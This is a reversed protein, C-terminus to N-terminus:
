ADGFLPVIKFQTVDVIGKDTIKLEPIVPLALFSLAMFPEELKCGMERVTQHLRNIGDRVEEISQDSMLGGIPLPLSTLTKGAKVAILGGHMEVIGQVAQAMDADNAGVVVINHSDHAVSSAMAGDRLGFGKVFGLGINGTGKHREVVAIKLIDREPDAVAWGEKTKVTHLAKKTIIQQPIIEIVKARDALAKIRFQEASIKPLHFTNEAKVQKEDIVGPLVKGKEAVLRGAKFVQDIKFENLDELVVLDAQYGPAIAGIDPLPFYCAPNITAMQIAIIPDLGLRIAKRVCHDIGGETILDAPHRDDTVFMCRRANLPTIIQILEELNKATSGERIKIYMGLCLKEEAEARRTCEHDSSIGAAIYAILEKGSLGPAHGDIRKGQAAEIKKLVESDGNIVGPFNMMEGLGKVWEEQMLNKLDEAQIEAGATELPTAPVCSPLMVYLNLPLIKIGERMLHIGKIGMVNAIEHFDTVVTTVGHPLVARAYGGVGVMSSEIHVHADIFGPALFRGQLDLVEKAPYSGFGVIRGQAIAITQPEVRGSFVDILQVNTLLLDVEKEGKAFAIRDKIEM